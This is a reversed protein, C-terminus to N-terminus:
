PASALSRRLTCAFHGVSSKLNIAKMKIAYCANENSKRKKKILLIFSLLFYNLVSCSGSKVIELLKQHKSHGSDSYLHKQVCVSALKANIYTVIVHTNECRSGPSPSEPLWATRVSPQSPRVRLHQWWPARCANWVPWDTSVCPTARDCPHCIHLNYM